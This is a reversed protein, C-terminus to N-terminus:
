QQRCHAKSVTAQYDAVMAGGAGAAAAANAAATAEARGSSRHTGCVMGYGAAAPPDLGACAGQEFFVWAWAPRRFM